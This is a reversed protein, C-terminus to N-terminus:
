IHRWTRRIAILHVTSQSVGFEGAVTRTSDGMDIRARISLVDSESLRAQPHHSGRLGPTPAARGKTAMDDFNEQHTGLFLHAPNVCPPNDCSHCVLRGAASGVGHAIEYSYRHALTGTASAFAGYGRANTASTWVWCEGSKDVKSWFREKEPVIIQGSYGKTIRWREYHKACLGRARIFGGCGQVTCGESM